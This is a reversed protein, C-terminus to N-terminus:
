PFYSSFLFKKKRWEKSEKVIFNINLEFSQLFSFFFLDKVQYIFTQAHIKGVTSFFKLKKKERGLYVKLYVFFFVWFSRFPTFLTLCNETQHVWYVAFSSFFIKKISEHSDLLFKRIFNTRHLKMKLSQVFM